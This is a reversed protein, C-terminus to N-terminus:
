KLPVRGGPFFLGHANTTFTWPYFFRPLVEIQVTYSVDIYISTPREEQRVSIDKETVPLGYRRAAVLVADRVSGADKDPGFQAIKEVDDTFQFQRWAAMGAHWAAWALAAIVILRLLRGM